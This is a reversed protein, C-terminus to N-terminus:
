AECRCAAGGPPGPECSGPGGCVDSCQREAWVGHECIALAADNSCVSSDDECAMGINTCLCSVKNEFSGCGLSLLSRDACLTDCSSSQWTWDKACWDLTQVGDCRAEGPHCGDAAPTCACLLDPRDMSQETNCGVSTVENGISGCYDACSNQTWEGEHCHLVDVDDICMADEWHCPVGEVLDVNAIAKEVPEAPCALTLAFALAGRRTMGIMGTMASM